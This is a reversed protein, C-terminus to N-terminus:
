WSSGRTFVPLLRNKACLSTDRWTIRYVCGLESLQASDTRHAFWFCELLVSFSSTRFKLVIENDKWAM